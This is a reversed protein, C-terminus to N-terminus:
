KLVNPNILIFLSVVIGVVFSVVIIGIIFKNKKSLVTVNQEKNKKDVRTQVFCLLVAIISCVVVIAANLESHIEKDVLLNAISNSSFALTLGLFIFIWEFNIIDLNNNRKKLKKKEKGKIKIM